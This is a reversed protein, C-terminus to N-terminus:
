PPSGSAAATQRRKKKNNEKEIKKLDVFPIARNRRPKRRSLVRAPDSLRRKTEDTFASILRLNVAAIWWALMWSNKARGMVRIRGRAMHQASEDRLNGFFSEVNPTRRSYADFWEPSGYPYKQRLNAQATGPMMTTLQSCIPPPADVIEQSPTVTRVASPPMQM